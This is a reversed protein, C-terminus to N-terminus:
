PYAGDRPVHGLVAHGPVAQVDQHDADNGNVTVGKYDAGNSSYPGKYSDGDLFYDNSYSPGEPFTSRDFSRKIGFAIDDATVDQGNEYKVGDRIEFTWKTYDANHDGLSTALDPILIMDGSKEDYAYQTLSRTVLNTLIAGTNIYYAESPDMSNLGDNSVVRVTGGSKAGPIEPAPPQRDPDRTAGAAGSNPDFSGETDSTGGSGGCAALALLGVSSLAVVARTRTTPKFRM